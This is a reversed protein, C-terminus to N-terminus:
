NDIGNKKFYERWYEKDENYYDEMLQEYAGDTDLMTFAVEVVKVAPHDDHLHGYTTNGNQLVKKLQELYHRKIEFQKSDTMDAATRVITDGDITGSFMAHAYYIAYPIATKAQAVMVRYRIQRIREGIAPM